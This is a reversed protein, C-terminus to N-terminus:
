PFAIRRVERPPLGHCGTADIPERETGDARLRHIVGRDADPLLLLDHAAEYVGDGITFSAAEFLVRAEAGLLLVRDTAGTGADGWAVTVWRDEAVPVTPGTPVADTPHDAARWAAVEVLEGAADLRYAVVGAGARRMAEDAFAPGQCTVVVADGIPDVEGCTSLGEVRHLRAELTVPDVVAVAGSGTQRFDASLRALGVVVRELGERRIPAMRDPRAYVDGEDGIAGLDIRRAVRDGDLIAVDDGRTLDAPDVALNATYRTIWVADGVRLVDHPNAAFAAGVDVQGRVPEDRCPDLMSVVDTGYRDVVVLTCPAFPSTPLVVDGSLAAVIGPRATGSDLWAATIVSGDSDLLGIASSTYDTSVVAYSPPVAPRSLDAAACDGDPPACAALALALWARKM